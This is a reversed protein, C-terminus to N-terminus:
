KYTHVKEKLWNNNILINSHISIHNSESLCHHCYLIVNNYAYKELRMNPVVNIM